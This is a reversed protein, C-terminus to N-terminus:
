ITFKGFGSIDLVGIFSSSKEQSLQENIKNVLWLFLRHYLAKSL